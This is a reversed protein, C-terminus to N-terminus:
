PRAQRSQPGRRSSRGPSGSNSMTLSSPVDREVGIVGQRPRARIPRACGPRCKSPAQDVGIEEPAAARAEPAAPAPRDRRGAISASSIMLGCNWSIGEVRLDDTAQRVRSWRDGQRLEAAKEEAVSIKPNRGDAREVSPGDTIGGCRAGLRGGSRRRAGPGPPWGRLRAIEDERGSDLAAIRGDLVAAPAAVLHCDVRGNDVTAALIELQRALDADRVDAVTRRQVQDEVPGAAVVPVYQSGRHRSSRSWPGSGITSRQWKPTGSRARRSGSGPAEDARKGFIGAREGLAIRPHPEVRRDVLHVDARPHAREVADPVLLQAVFAGEDRRRPLRARALMAM